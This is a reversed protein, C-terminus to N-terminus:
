RHFSPSIITKLTKMQANFLQFFDPRSKAHGQSREFFFSFLSRVQRGGISQQRDRRPIKLYIYYYEAILHPVM